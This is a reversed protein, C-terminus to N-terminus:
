LKKTNKIVLLNPMERLIRKADNIYYKRISKEVPRNILNTLVVIMNAFINLSIIKIVPYKTIGLVLMVILTILIDTFLARKVRSTYKLSIKSKKKPINYIISVGLIIIAVISVVYNNFCLLITPIIILVLQVLLKKINKRMWKFHKLFFYSNLQLMHTNFLILLIYNIFLEVVIVIKM